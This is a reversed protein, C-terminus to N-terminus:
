PMPLAFNGSLLVLDMDIRSSFRDDLVKKFEENVMKGFVTLSGNDNEVRVKLVPNAHATGINLHFGILATNDVIAIFATPMSNYTRVEFNKGHSSGFASRLMRLTKIAENKGAEPSEFIIEGRQRLFVSNPHLLVLKM